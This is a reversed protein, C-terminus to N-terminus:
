QFTRGHIAAVHDACDPVIAFSRRAKPGSKKARDSIRADDCIMASAPNNKCHLM